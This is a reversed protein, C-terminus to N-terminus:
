ERGAAPATPEAGCCEDVAGRLWARFALFAKRRATRRPWVLWYAYPSPLRLDFPAVLLGRSLAEAAILSRGMLVGQGAIAAQVAVTSESYSAATVRNWDLGDVGAEKLWLEWSDDPTGDPYVTRFLPVGRLDEPRTLRYKEAVSPACVPFISESIIKECEAGQPATRAHRIALDAGDNFDTVATTALLTLRVEPHAESFAPLRPVLWSASFSPLASVALTGDDAPAAVTAVAEALRDFGETLGPVLARGAPTLRLGRTVRKFLVLGLRDELGKVQQSIAAPTVSLEDAAKAFSLHRAAAEFARLGNLPPLNRGMRRGKM